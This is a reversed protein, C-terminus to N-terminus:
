PVEVPDVEDGLYAAIVAPNRRVHAPTGDALARGFEMVYVHDCVDMILGMDHDILLISIGDAVLKRLMTALTRTEATDLGAAPEDALLLMPSMAVARAMGVLKLQGQSIQTPLRLALDAVGFRELVLHAESAPDHKRVVTAPRSGLEVNELVTLDEFLEGTQWTRVIGQRARRHASLRSIENGQLKISGSSPAFGTLADVCSTKGAGNPGILGVIQREKVRLNLGDVAKVGGYHVSLSSVVLLNDDNEESDVIRGRRHWM